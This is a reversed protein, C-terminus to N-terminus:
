FRRVGVRLYLRLLAESATATVLTAGEAPTAVITVTPGGGPGAAGDGAYWDCLNPSWEYFGLLDSPPQANRPHSFTTTTGDTSLGFVGANTEGPHTGFWAEIGNPLDDGDPDAGLDRDGAAVGFAPDSIWNGFTDPGLGLARIGQFWAEAMLDYHPNDPHNIGNALVNPAIASAYNGPDVLFLSYLDVTSVKHGRSAFAPVLTDRIYVNYNYLNQNFSALPTIQAVILHADPAATVISSVLNSLAAPSGSGIGNIGILLLIVDPQDAALWGNVHAWIGAGGYGRHGDQGFDRLDLDPKYAGGHTPDGSIGTWPETSAGVFLFSCGADTLRTYLGSRYGFRFPHNAWTPNDTYGVTISDGLCMIRLPETGTTFNWSTDDAIGGFPNGSLDALANTAIHVAYGTAVALNAAPNITLVSGAISVAGPLAIPVDAGGSLNKLTISGAGTLKIPESFTAKLNSLVPVNTADDAPVLSTLTDLTPPTEDGNATPGGFVDLERWVFAGSAHGAQAKATVKIFEIGTALVGSPDTLTVKTTGGGSGLPQYDVAALTTYSGGVPKVELTWAQNGFGVNVWDAISQVTTLDWGKGGPGIGLHYEATAGTTTWAGQVRDGPVVNFAGGHIGDTLELPSAENATNWGTTTPALGSLLDAASVDDAYAFQNTSYVRTVLATSITFKGFVDIERLVVGGAANGVTDLINFRIADIGSALVGTTDTVNVKTSGGQANNAATSTSPQYEVTTLLTYSAAGLSRVWIAYKQNQFGAGQWAAISQINTLDYGLGNAGSGLVFERFSVNNGNKAWAAGTLASAGSADYDGGALGDNLGAPSSGNANWTGGTGVIGHLLDTNSVDGAFTVEDNTTSPTFPGSVATTFVPAATASVACLGLFAVLVTLCAPRAPHMNM